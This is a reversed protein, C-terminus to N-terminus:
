PLFAKLVIERLEPHEQIAWEVAQRIQRRGLKATKIRFRIQEALYQVQFQQYVYSKLQDRLILLPEEFEAPPLEVEDEQEKQERDRQDLLRLAKNISPLDQGSISSKNELDLKEELFVKGVALRMYNYISTRSIEPFTAALWLHWTGGRGHKKLGMREDAEVFWEGIEIAERLIRRASKELGAHKSRVWDIEEKSIPVVLETSM